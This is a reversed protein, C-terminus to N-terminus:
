LHTVNASSSQRNTVIRSHRDVERSNLSEEQYYVFCPAAHSLCYHTPKSYPLGWNSDRSPVGSSTRWRAFAIFVVLTTRDSYYIDSNYTKEILTLIFLFLPLTGGFRLFFYSAFANGGSVQRYAVIAHRGTKMDTPLLQEVQPVVAQRGALV